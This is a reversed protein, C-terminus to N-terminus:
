MYTICDNGHFSEANDVKRAGGEYDYVYEKNDDFLCWLMAVAGCTAGWFVYCMRYQLRMHPQKSRLYMGPNILAIQLFIRSTVDFCLM